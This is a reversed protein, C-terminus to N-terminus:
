TFEPVKHGTPADMIATEGEYMEVDKTPWAGSCISHADLWGGSTTHKGSSHFNRERRQMRWSLAEHRSHHSNRSWDTPLCPGSSTSTITLDIITEGMGDFIINGHTSGGGTRSKHHAGFTLADAM